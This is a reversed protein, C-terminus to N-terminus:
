AEQVFAPDSMLLVTGAPISFPRPVRNLLLIEQKAALGRSGFRQQCFVGLSVPEDLRVRVLPPRGILFANRASMASSLAQTAARRAAKPAGLADLVDVAGSLAAISADVNLLSGAVAEAAAMAYLLGSARAAVERGAAAVDDPQDATLTATTQGQAAAAQALAGPAPQPADRLGTEVIKITFQITDAGESPAENASVSEVVARTDGFRPHTLRGEPQALVVDVIRRYRARVDGGLLACRFDFRRPPAGVTQHIAGRRKVVQHEVVGTKIEDAWSLLTGYLELTEGSLTTFSFADGNRILPTPM